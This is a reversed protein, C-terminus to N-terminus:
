LLCQQYSSVNSVPEDDGSSLIDVRESDGILLVPLYINM